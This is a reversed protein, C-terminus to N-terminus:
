SAAGDDKPPRGDGDEPEAKAPVPPTSQAPSSQNAARKDIFVFLVQKAARNKALAAEGSKEKM